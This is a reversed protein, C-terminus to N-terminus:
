AVSIQLWVALPHAMLAGRIDQMQRRAVKGRRRQRINRARELHLRAIQTPCHGLDALCLACQSRGTGDEARQRRSFLQDGNGYRSNREWGKRSHPDHVRIDSQRMRVAM